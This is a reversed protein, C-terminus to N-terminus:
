LTLALSLIQIYPSVDLVTKWLRDLNELIWMHKFFFFFDVKLDLKQKKVNEVELFMM